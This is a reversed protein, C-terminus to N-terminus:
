ALNYTLLFGNAFCKQKNWFWICRAYITAILKPKIYKL